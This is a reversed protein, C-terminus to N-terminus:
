GMTQTFCDSIGLNSRSSCIHIFVAVGYMGTFRFKIFDYINNNITVMKIFCHFHNRYPQNKKYLVWQHGQIM